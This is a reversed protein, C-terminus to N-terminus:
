CGSMKVGNEYVGEFIEKPSIVLAKGNKTNDAKTEGFYITDKYKLIKFNESKVIEKIKFDKQIPQYGKM